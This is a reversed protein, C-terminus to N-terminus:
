NNGACTIHVEDNWHLSPPDTALPTQDTVAGARAPTDYHPYLGAEVIADAAASCPQGKVDPVTALPAPGTVFIKITVGKHVSANAAPDTARVTHDGDTGEFVFRWGLKLDRVKQRAAQFDQGALDPLAFTDPPGSSTPGGTPFTPGTTPTTTTVSPTASPTNLVTTANVNAVHIGFVAGAVGLLLILTAIASVAFPSWGRPPEEDQYSSVLGTDPM